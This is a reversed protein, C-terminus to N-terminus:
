VKPRDLLRLFSEYKRTLFVDADDYLLRMIREVQRGGTYKLSVARGVDRIDTYGVDANRVLWAQHERVFEEAGVLNYCWSANAQTYFLSGDGDFAGRYLHRLLRKKIKPTGHNCTKDPTVGLQILAKCLKVSCLDIYVLNTQKSKKIEATSGLDNALKRLHYADSAILSVRCVWNDAGTQGVHGDALIFGLWYAKAETDIEDFFSEDLTYRRAPGRRRLQAGWRHLNARMTAFSRGYETALAQVTEGKEYRRVIEAKPLDTTRPM